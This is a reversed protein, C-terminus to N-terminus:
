AALKDEAALIRRVTTRHWRSGLAKIGRRNLEDAIRRAGYGQERLDLILARTKPPVQLPDGQERKVRFTTAIREGIIEREWQAFVALMGAMARGNPTNLNFGEDLVVLTWGRRKAEELIAAFDLLSRCLRDLKSVILADGRRLDSLVEQLVPRNDARGGSAVEQRFSAAPYAAEIASRQAALGLGSRGQEDTSVRVYGIVSV